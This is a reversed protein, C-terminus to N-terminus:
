GACLQKSPPECGVDEEGKHASVLLYRDIAARGLLLGLMLGTYTGTGFAQGRYHEWAWRWVHRYCGRWCEETADVVVVENFGVRQCVARYEEGDQVYNQWKWVWKRRLRHFVWRRFLVDALVLHGGPKLVRYAERLFGERSEFAAAAEVCIVAEFVGTGFGLQGADMALFRCGSAKRKGVQVRETALDVGVVATVPYYRLLYRTTAGKGCAVDLLMGQKAPLFALLKEMLNECAEHQSQTAAEWYGFNWFDSYGTFEQALRSDWLPQSRSWLRTKRRQGFTPM